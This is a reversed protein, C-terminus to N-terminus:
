GAAPAREAAMGALPSGDQWALRKQLYVATGEGPGSDLVLDDVLARMIQIGRGSEADSHEQSVVHDFGRGRDVVKLICFDGDIGAVVEYTDTPGAHDLVNTCAESIAILVDNVCDDTAGLTRLTDGVVRRIVPISLTERPLALSFKIDM